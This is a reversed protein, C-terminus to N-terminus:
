DNIYLNIAEIIDRKKISGALQDGAATPCPELELLHGQDSARPAKQNIRELGGPVVGGGGAWRSWSWCILGFLPCGV